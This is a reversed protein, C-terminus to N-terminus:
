PRRANEGPRTEAARVKWRDCRRPLREISRTGSVSCRVDGLVALEHRYALLERYAERITTAARKPNDVTALAMNFQRQRWSPQFELAKESEFPNGFLKTALSIGDPRM